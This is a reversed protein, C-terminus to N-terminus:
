LMEVYINMNNTAGWKRTGMWVARDYEDEEVFNDDITYEDLAIIMM